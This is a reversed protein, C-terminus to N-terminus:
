DQHNGHANEKKRDVRQMERSAKRLVGDVLRGLYEVKLSQFVGAAPEIGILKEKELLGPALLGRWGWNGVQSQWFSNDSSYLTDIQSVSDAALQQIWDDLRPGVKEPSIQKIRARRIKEKSSKLDALHHKLVNFNGSDMADRVVIRLRSLQARDEMGIITLNAVAASLRKELLMKIYQQGIMRAIESSDTNDKLQPATHDSEMVSYSLDERQMEPYLWVARLRGYGEIRRDGVGQSLLAKIKDQPITGPKYVFVSGAQLALTQPLPHGWTRNFGGLLRSRYWSEEAPCGVAEELNLTPQGNEDYLIADSTLVLALRPSTGEPPKQEPLGAETWDQEVRVNRLEVLGYHASRSRGMSLQLGDHLDLAEQFAEVQDGLIAATFIQGAALAQYRFVQSNGEGKVRRTWGSNHIEIYWDPVLMQPRDPRSGNYFFPESLTVPRTLSHAGGAALDVIAANPAARYDKEVRWSLPTPLARGGGPHQPYAHLFFQNEFFWAREQQHILFNFEKCKLQALRRAILAGRITSGPLYALGEASNEDGPETRAILVPQCLHIDLVLAKM